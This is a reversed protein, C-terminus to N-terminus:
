TNYVYPTTRRDGQPGAVMSMSIHSASLPTREASAPLVTDGRRTGLTAQVLGVLVMAGGILKARASEKM